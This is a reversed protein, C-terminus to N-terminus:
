ESGSQLVHLSSKSEPPVKAWHRRGASRENQDGQGEHLVLVACAQMHSHGKKKSGNHGKSVAFQQLLGQLRESWLVEGTNRYTCASIGPRISYLIRRTPVNWDMRAPGYGAHPWGGKIFHQGGGGRNAQPQRNFTELILLKEISYM